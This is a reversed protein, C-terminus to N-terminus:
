RKENKRRFNFMLQGSKTTPKKITDEKLLQIAEEADAATGSNIALEVFKVCLNNLKGKLTEYDKHAKTIDRELRIIKDKVKEPM